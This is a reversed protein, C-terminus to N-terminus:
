GWISRKQYLANKLVSSLLFLEVKSWSEKVIFLMDVFVPYIFIVCATLNVHFASFCLYFVNMNVQYYKMTSM